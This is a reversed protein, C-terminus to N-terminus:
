LLSKSLIAHVWPLVRFQFSLLDTRYKLGIISNAESVFIVLDFLLASAKPVIFTNSDGALNKNGMCHEYEFFKLGM